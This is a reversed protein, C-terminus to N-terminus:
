AASKEDIVLHSENAKKRDHDFEISTGKKKKTQKNKKESLSHLGITSTPNRMSEDPLM